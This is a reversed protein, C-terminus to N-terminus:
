EKFGFERRALQIVRLTEAFEPHSPDTFKRVDTGTEYITGDPLTAESLTADALDAGQLLAYQLDVDTLDTERLIAGMLNAFRLSDHELNKGHLNSGQLNAGRLDAYIYETHRFDIGRLDAGRLDTNIIVAGDLKANRLNAGQLQTDDLYAGSLNAEQLNAAELDKGRLDANELNAGSLDVARSHRRMREPFGLLEDTLFEGLGARIVRKAFAQFRLNEVEEITQESVQADLYKRAFAMFQGTKYIYSSVGAKNYMEQRLKPHPGGTKGSHRRFWDNDNTVLVIPQKTEKAYDIIQFWGILDGYPDSKKRQDKSSCPPLGSERRRKWEKKIKDVCEQSYPNEYDRAFLQGIKADVPNQNLSSQHEEKFKLLDASVKKFLKHFEEVRSRSEYGTRNNFQNFADEVSRRQKELAAIVDDFPKDTSERTEQLNEHYEYLFQYPIWIRGVLSELIEILEKRASPSFRFLDLLVNADFVFIAEEQLMDFDPRYYGEFGKIM